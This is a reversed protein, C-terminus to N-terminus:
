GKRRFTSTFFRLFPAEYVFELGKISERRNWVGLIAEVVHDMHDTTYVRRPVTIRVLELKPKRNEGTKPDRGASVTGREMTRVGGEVYIEAALIQAPFEDQPIHPLFRRADLYVAHGGIPRVVPIGLSHLREGLYQVQRIRSAIYDYDTMEYLGKALIVLDRDALGGDYPSGDFATAFEYIRAYVDPDRVLLLGSINTLPDKKASISAADAYSLLERVIRAISWNEYGRERTKIFYANETIRTADFVVPIGYRDAIERIRRVNELSVPQGGAMNVNTEICIYAINEAGKEKIFEEVRVADLNGKFPHEAAPDHAEPIILDVFIGGAYEQHFRTTTFYMNNIVYQGPKILAQSIFHEAQRGQHTPIFYPFGYVDEVAQALLSYPDKWENYFAEGWQEDSMASTGSDTLLDIYVDESKLLFTNFGAEEIAKERYERGRMRLLEVSKFRYPYGEYPVVEYKPVPGEPEYDMVEEEHFDTEYAAMLRPLSKDKLYALTKVFHDYHERTYTRRPLHLCLRGKGPKANGRVQGSLYLALNLSVPDEHLIPFGTPSFHPGVEYGAEKVAEYLRKVEHYRWIYYDERLAEDLGVAIVEMDRGALGGYTHLGEFSVVWSQFRRYIEESGTIILAGVHSFLDHTADLLVVDADKLLQAVRGKLDNPKRGENLDKFALLSFIRSANVVVLMGRAKAGRIWRDIEHANKPTTNIYALTGDGPTDDPSDYEKVPVNFYGALVKFTPTPHYAVIEAKEGYTKFLLHEAGRINHAPVVWGKGFIERVKRLIKLFNKSGAYAEDGRFLAGMQEESLGNHTLDYLDVLVYGAPIKHVNYGYSQAVNLREAYDLIPVNSVIKGKYTESLM